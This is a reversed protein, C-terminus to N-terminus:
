NITVFWKTPNVISIPLKKGKLALNMIEFKALSNVIVWRNKSQLIRNYGLSIRHSPPKPSNIVSVVNDFNNKLLLNQPFLSAIHGDPGMGLLVLDFIPSKEIIKTYIDVGNYPGLEAPISIFNKKPLKSNITFLNSLFLDNREEDGIKVCREDSPYIFIKDWQLKMKSLIILANKASEGGPLVIHCENNNNIAESINIFLEEALAKSLLDPNEFTDFLSL